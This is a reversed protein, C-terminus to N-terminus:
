ATRNLRTLLAQFGDQFNFILKCNRKELYEVLNPDKFDKSNKNLFIKGANPDSLEIHNRISSYVTADPVTLDYENQIDSIDLFVETTLPIITAIKLLENRKEELSSFDQQISEILVRTAFLDLQGIDERYSPTRSLQKNQIDISRKLQKREKERRVFTENPELLCFAPIVLQIAGDRCLQLIHKCSEYDEQQLAYEIVFNSEIYVLM